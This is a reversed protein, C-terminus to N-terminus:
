VKGVEPQCVQCESVAELFSTKSILRLSMMHRVILIVAYSLYIIFLAM